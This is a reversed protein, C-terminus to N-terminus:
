IVWAVFIAAWALLDIGSPEPIVLNAAFMVVSLAIIAVKYDREKWASLYGLVMFVGYPLMQLVTSSQFGIGIIVALASIVVMVQKFVLNKM